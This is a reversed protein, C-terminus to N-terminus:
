SESRHKRRIGRCKLQSLLECAAAESIGTAALEDVTFSGLNTMSVESRELLAVVLEADGIGGLGGVWAPLEDRLEDLLTDRGLADGRCATDGPNSCVAQSAQAARTSRQMLLCDKCTYKSERARLHWQRWM